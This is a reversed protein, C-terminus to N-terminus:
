SSFFRKGLGKGTAVKILANLNNNNRRREKFSSGNLLFPLHEVEHLFLLQEFRNM